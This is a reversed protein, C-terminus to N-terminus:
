EADMERKLKRQPNNAWFSAVVLLVGSVLTAVFAAYYSGTYDKCFSFLLPGTASSIIMSSMFVGSIAGIHTVGYYRAIFAGSIPGFCGSTISMGVIIAPILFGEIPVVLASASLAIGFAMFAAFYKLRFRDSYWGVGISIFGGIIASPLFFGLIRKDPIGIQQALDLIHFVYATIFLAQLAFIGTYIWFAFNRIAESRTFDRVVSFEPDDKQKAGPAIGADVSLGCEAPNDRFILWGFFAFGVALAAGLIRWAMRWDTAQILEYFAIPALSFCVSVGIGTVPLVKGRHYEWWKAVMNRGAMTVFGQGTFRILFFGVMLSAVLMWNLAGQLSWLQAIAIPIWDVISLYFLSLGLSVSSAVMLRRAGIRDYIKGAWLLITGSVATGIFYALAVQSRTLGLAVILEDNFVNVGITQGPISAVMASASAVAIVWGYHFPLSAPRFPFDPSYLKSM